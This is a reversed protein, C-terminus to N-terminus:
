ELLYKEFGPSYKVELEGKENEFILYVELDELSEIVELSKEVGMVMCSTAYADATMCNDAIISAALLNHEVPFGTKPDITHSYKKGDKVYFNRYNGSSALAKGSLAITTQLDTNVPLPNDIPKHIGIVWPKGKDNVGKTVVEGGIEVLYNKCGQENLYDGVVDVGYGKAIASADIKLRADVKVFQNGDFAIKKYGVFELISDIEDQHYPRHRVDDASFGFGWYNVLPAVTMDFAGHTVTSVQSGLEYVRTLYADSPATQESQNVKSITSNPDYTSVSANFVQLLSDIQSHLDRGQKDSYKINYSTGFIAGNNYIYTPTAEKEKDGFDFILFIGGLLILAIIIYKNRKM